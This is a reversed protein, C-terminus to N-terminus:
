HGSPHGAPPALIVIEPEIRMGRASRPLQARLLTRIATSTAEPPMQKLVIEFCLRELNRTELSSLGRVRVTVGPLPVMQVVVVVHGLLAMQVRENLDEAVMSTGSSTLRVEGFQVIDGRELGGHSLQAKTGNEIVLANAGCQRALAAHESLMRYTGHIPVFARPRVAELMARQEDRPAHGTAHIAPADHPTRVQAGLRALTDELATVAREHGPIVRSSFIVTDGEYVKVDPHQGAAIRTLGSGPEAQSGTVLFLCRERPFEIARAPSLALGSPWHLHGLLEGLRTHTEMSKGILFIHRRTRQAIEGLARLRRLNSAFVTVFVAGRADNIQSALADEVEAESRSAGAELANTSDSLLLDIGERGLSQFRDLDFDSCASADIKFDGSHVIHHGTGAVISLAFADPISHSVSIPEVAFSHTKQADRAEISYLHARKLVEFERERRKLLEIAYRPGYVPVDFQQLLYPIAGIHDEHGHTLFVAEIDYHHLVELSPYVKEVGLEPHAFTVGCDVVIARRGSTIAMCNKGVEGLGGLPVIEVPSPGRSVGDHTAVTM